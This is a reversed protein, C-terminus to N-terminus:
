MTNYETSQNQQSFYYTNQAVICLHVDHNQVGVCPCAHDLFLGRSTTAVIRDVIVPDQALISWLALFLCVVAAGLM